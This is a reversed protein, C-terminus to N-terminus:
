AHCREWAVSITFAVVDVCAWRRTRRPKLLHMRAQQLTPPCQCVVPVCPHTVIYPKVHQYFFLYFVVVTLLVETRVYLTCVKHAPLCGSVAPLEVLGM